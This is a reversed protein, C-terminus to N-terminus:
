VARSTHVVRHVHECLRAYHLHLTPCAAGQLRRPEARQLDVRGGARHLLAPFRSWRLQRYREHSDTRRSCETALRGTCARKWLPLGHQRAIIQTPFCCISLSAPVYRLMEHHALLERWAGRLKEVSVEPKLRLLVHQVYMTPANASRFLVGEQVPLPPLLAEIIGVDYAGEVEDKVREAFQKVASAREKAVSAPQGADGLAAIASVLPAQMIQPPAVKVEFARRLDAAFRAVALSDMGCEFLNTDPGLREVPIRVYPELVALVKRESETPERRAESSAGASKAGAGAMLGTLAAMDLELFFATLVKADAKGNSSLPIFTLPVIHSPRMYSALERESASRLKQLLGEPPAALSPKGGKRTAVPVAPDWAVFSVLQEVGIAPHKALITIVDLTHAPAAASRLISSIGESEIRVGRLKIQTDIRGMIELTADPMMRVLDGTRYAWRDTGDDPFKLFVKETLDPRGVYGRGVLPGEVVLEGPAGRLVINMNEDVVYAAVNAFTHGINARPTDKDMM